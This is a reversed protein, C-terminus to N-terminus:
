SFLTSSRFFYQHAFVFIPQGFGGLYRAVIRCPQAIFLEAVRLRACSLNPELTHSPLYGLHRGATCVRKRMSISHIRCRAISLFFANQEFILSTLHWKEGM